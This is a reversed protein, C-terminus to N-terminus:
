PWSCKTQVGAAATFLKRVARYRMALSTLDWTRGDHDEMTLDLAWGARLGMKRAMETVRPPSYVEAVEMKALLHKVM